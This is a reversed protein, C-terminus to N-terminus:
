DVQVADVGLEIVSTASTNAYIPENMDSPWEATLIYEDSSDKGADFSFNKSTANSVATTEYNCVTFVTKNSSKNKVSCKIPMSGDLQIKMAYDVAVETIKGSKNNTVVFDYTVMDGPNKLNSLDLLHTNETDALNFTFQAVRASDTYINKTTYKAAVGSLLWVSVLTLSLLVALIRFLINSKKYSSNM